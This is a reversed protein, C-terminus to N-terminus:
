LAIDIEGVFSKVIEGLVNRVKCCCVRPMVQSIVIKVNQAIPKMSSIRIHLDIKLHVVNLNLRFVKMASKPISAIHM